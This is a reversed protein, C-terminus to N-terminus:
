RIVEDSCSPTCANCTCFAYSYHVDFSVAGRWSIRPDAEFGTHIIQHALRQHKYLPKAPTPFPHTIPYAKSTINSLQNLKNPKTKLQRANFNRTITRIHRITTPKKKHNTNYNIRYKKFSFPKQENQYTHFKLLLFITKIISFYRQITKTWLVTLYNIKKYFFYLYKSFQLLTDFIKQVYPLKQITDNQINFKDYLYKLRELLILKSRIGKKKM